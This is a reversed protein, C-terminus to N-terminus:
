SNRRRIYMFLGILLVTLPIVGIFIIGIAVTTTGDVVGLEINESPASTITIGMDGRNTVTNCLNVIYNANNYTTVSLFESYMMAYSGFVVVNSTADEDGTKKGIAALTVGEPKMFQQLDSEDEISSTDADFPMVGASSSIGLLANAVTDDTIEIPRSNYVVTPITANKLTKTFTADAYEALFMYPTSMSYSSSTSFAIGNGIKMGYKELIADINPTDTKQAIPLYILTKGYKGDNDLWSELKEAAATSLDVTPGYMIAIETEASLNETTLSVESVDYANNKLLSMLESYIKSDEGAGTLFQVKVKDGTTVDLIGTVLAQEINSATWYYGGYYTYYQSDYTFCEDVTLATYDEGSEILMLYSSTSSNWDIDPYKGSFTPNETLDVYKITLKNSLADAKKLLKEAQVFYNTGGLANLGSKFAKKSALINVTVDSDLQKIYDVTDKQLQYTQSATLDIQLNPFRDVLLGAVINVLLALAVALAVIVVAFSGHKTKRSKFFAKINAFFKNPKKEKSAEAETITEVQTNELAEPNTINDLNKNEM